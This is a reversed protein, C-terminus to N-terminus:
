PTYFIREGRLLRALQDPFFEANIPKGLFGDFGTEYVNNLESAHVSYAVLKARSVNPHSRILEAAQYGNVHPLELDLFIIDINRFADLQLHLNKATPIAFSIIGELTLLQQLVLINTPKDDIILAQARPM